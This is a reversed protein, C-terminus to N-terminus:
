EKRKLLSLFFGKIKKVKVNLGTWNLLTSGSWIIPKSILKLIFMVMTLATTVIMMCLTYGLKLIFKLPKLALISVMNCIFRYTYIVSTIMWELLKKYITQFLARYAAYGCLLALFIYFRVEGHNSGLLVFFVVFSQILWFLLDNLAVLWHFSHRKKSFRGYTDIAAGLYLGTAAMSLMTHLQVTLTM